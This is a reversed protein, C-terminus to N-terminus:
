DGVSGARATFTRWARRSAARASREGARAGITWARRVDAAAAGLRGAGILHSVLQREWGSAALVAITVLERERAGLGPRALVRGYGQEIMWTALDPHM